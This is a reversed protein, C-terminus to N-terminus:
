RMPLTPDRMLLGKATKSVAGANRTGTMKNVPSTTCSYPVPYDTTGRFWGPLLEEFIRLTLGLEETTGVFVYDHYNRMAAELTCRERQECFYGM